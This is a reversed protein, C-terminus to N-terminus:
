LQKHSEQRSNRRLALENVFDMVSQNASLLSAATSYLGVFYRTLTPM